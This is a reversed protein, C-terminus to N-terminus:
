QRAEYGAAPAALVADRLSALEAGGSALLRTALEAGLRSADAITSAPGTLRQRYGTQGDPDGMFGEIRVEGADLTAFAAIAARCGTGLRELFAREATTTLRTERDDISHLLQPVFEDGDRCEVGLAGQGVMPLCIAPDLYATIQDQWGMRHLGAAGLVIADYPAAAAKRLRTDINGRLDIVNFDDRLARLQATRRPSSTGITAGLPLDRPGLGHRSIWVDRPDERPTVAGLMVGLPLAGSLDKLSHVAFDIEGAVLALEIERVFVGQGGLESLRRQKDRDGLPKFTVPEIALGPHRAQLADIVLETQRLALASGRTGARLPKM